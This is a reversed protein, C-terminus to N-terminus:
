KGVKIKYIIRSYLGMLYIKMRKFPSSIPPNMSEPGPEVYFGRKPNFTLTKFKQYVKREMDYVRIISKNQNFYFLQGVRESLRLIIEHGDEIIVPLPLPGVEGLYLSPFSKYSGGTEDNLFISMNIETITVPRHGINSIRIQAREEFGIYEFFVSIRRREKQLERIGLITSLIAGWIAVSLTIWEM